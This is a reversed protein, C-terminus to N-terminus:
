TQFRQGAQSSACSALEVFAGSGTGTAAICLGAQANRITSIGSGTSVPTFTFDQLAGANCTALSIDWSATIAQTCASLTHAVLPAATTAVPWAALLALPFAILGAGSHPLPCPRMSPM